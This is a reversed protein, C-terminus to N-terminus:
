RLPLPYMQGDKSSLSDISREEAEVMAQNV